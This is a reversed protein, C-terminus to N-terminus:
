IDGRVNPYRAKFTLRAARKKSVMRRQYRRREGGSASRRARRGNECKGEESEAGDEEVDEADIKSIERLM